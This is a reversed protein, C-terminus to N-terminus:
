TKNQNKLSKLYIISNVQNPQFVLNIKQLSMRNKSLHNKRKKIRVKLLQQQRVIRKRLAQPNNHNKESVPHPIINPKDEQNKIQFKLSSIRGKMIKVKVNFLLKGENM